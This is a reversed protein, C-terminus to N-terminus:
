GYPLALLHGALVVTEGHSATVGAIKRDLEHHSKLRAGRDFLWLTKWGWALVDEGHSTLRIWYEPLEESALASGGNFRDFRYVRPSCYASDLRGDKLVMSYVGQTGLNEYFAQVNANQDCLYIEGASTGIAIAPGQAHLYTIRATMSGGGITFSVEIMNEDRHRLHMLYEYAKQVARFREPATADDPHFDPHARRAMRRHAHRIQDPTPREGLGLTELAWRYSGTGDPIPIRLIRKHRREHRRPLQWVWLLAGTVSLAYLYRGEAALILEDSAALSFVPSAPHRRQPVRWTWLLKGQRDLCHIGGDRCAVIWKEQQSVFSTCGDAPRAAGVLRLDPDVFYLDSPHGKAHHQTYGLSYGEQNMALQHIIPLNRVQKSITFTRADLDTLVSARQATAITRIRDESLCMNRPMPVMRSEKLIHPPVKEPKSIM